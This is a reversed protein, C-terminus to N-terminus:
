YLVQKYKEEKLEGEERNEMFVLLLGGSDYKHCNVLFYCYCARRECAIFNKKKYSILVLYGRKLV